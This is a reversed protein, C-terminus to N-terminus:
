FYEEKELMQSHIESLRAVVTEYSLKLNFNDLGSLGRIHFDNVDSFYHCLISRIPSAFESPIRRKYNSNGITEVIEVIQMYLELVEPQVNNLYHRFREDLEAMFGLLKDGTMNISSLTLFPRM